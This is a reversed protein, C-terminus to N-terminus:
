KCIEVCLGEWVNERWFALTREENPEYIAYGSEAGIAPSGNEWSKAISMKISVVGSDIIKKNNWPGNILKIKMKM